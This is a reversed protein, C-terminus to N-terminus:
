RKGAEGRRTLEDLTAQHKAHRKEAAKPDFEAMPEDPDGEPVDEVDRFTEWGWFRGNFRERPESGM